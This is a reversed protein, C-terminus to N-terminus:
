GTAEHEPCNVRLDAPQLPQNVLSCFHGGAGDAESVFYRCTVCLRQPAIRGAQQLRVITSIVIGHLTGADADSLMDVVADFGDPMQGLMARGADTLVVRVARANDPDPLRRVLEKAVLVAVV